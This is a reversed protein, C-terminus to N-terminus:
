NLLLLIENQAKLRQNEEELSKIRNKMEVINIALNIAALLTKENM